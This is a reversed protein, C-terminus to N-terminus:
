LQVANAPLKPPEPKPAETPPTAVPRTPQPPEDPVLRGVDFVTRFGIQLSQGTLSGPARWTARGDASGGRVARRPEARRLAPAQLSPGVPEVAPSSGYYGPDFWDSCWEWANGGLDHCGFPSLDTPQTAVPLIAGFAPAFNAAAGESGWPTIRGDTGRAAKEWQAETPMSKGAWKAYAAADRYTLGIAPHRATNAITLALLSLPVAGAQGARNADDVFLQYQAVTTEFKDIYFTRLRVRHPPRESPEGQAHGMEFEGEPVLMMRSQDKLCQIEIPWGSSHVGSEDISVFGEPLYRPAVDARAVTSRGVPAANPDRTELAQPTEAFDATPDIASAFEIPIGVKGPAITPEPEPPASPRQDELPEYQAVPGLDAFLPENNAHRRLAERALGAAATTPYTELLQRLLQLAQEIQKRRAATVADDYLQRAPQEGPNQGAAAGVTPRRKPAGSDLAFNLIVGLLVLALAGAGIYKAVTKSNDDFEFNFAFRGRKPQSLIPRDSPRPKRESEADAPQDSEWKKRKLPTQPRSERPVTEDRDDRRPRRAPKETPRQSKATRSRESATAPDEVDPPEDFGREIADATSGDVLFADAGVEDSQEAEVAVLLEEGCASCSGSKFKAKSAVFGCSKCRVEEYRTNCYACASRHLEVKEGCNGCVLM